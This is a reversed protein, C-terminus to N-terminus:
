KKVKYVLGVGVAAFIFNAAWCSLMPPLKGNNGFAEFVAIAVGWYLFSTFMTFLFGVAMGSRGFVVFLPAGLLAMIFCAFPFAIKDHLSVRDKRVPQGALKKHKILERMEFFSMEKLDKMSKVMFEPDEPVTLDKRAYPEEEWNNGSFTRVIGHTLHWTQGEWSAQSAFIERRVDNGEGFEHITVNQMAPNSFINLKDGEKRVLYKGHSDIILWRNGKEQISVTADESLTINEDEFNERLGASVIANDLDSQYDLEDVSFLLKSFIILGIHFVRGGSGAFVVNTAIYSRRSGSEELEADKGTAWTAVQDNFIIMLLAILFAAILVPQFVRYLSIGASKMATIENNEAMRGLSFFTAFLVSPPAVQIVLGPTQLALSFMSSLVSMNRSIFRGMEKESFRVVLLLVTFFLLSFVFNRLFERLIYRDLVRM